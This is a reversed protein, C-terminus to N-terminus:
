RPSSPFALFLWRDLCRTIRLRNCRFGNLRLLVFGFRFLLELRRLLGLKFRRFFLRGRNHSMVRLRRNLGLWNCFDLVDCRVSRRNGFFNLRM